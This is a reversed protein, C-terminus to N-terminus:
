LINMAAIVTEWNFPSSVTDKWINIVVSLKHIDIIPRQQIGELYNDPVRLCISILYWQASKDVLLNLLKYKDPAKEISDSIDLTCMVVSNIIIISQKAFQICILFYKLM